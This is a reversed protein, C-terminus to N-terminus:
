NTRLNKQPMANSRRMTFGICFMRLLYGDTTKVDCYAEILSHWKRILSCLKDRTIDMGYFDTLCNKGQIDECCLKIKRFGQDEDNNLDALNIEYVRGRLGDAALELVCFCVFFVLFM